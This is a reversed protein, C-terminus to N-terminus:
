PGKTTTEMNQIIQNQHSWPSSGELWSDRTV